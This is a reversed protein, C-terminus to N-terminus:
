TPLPFTWSIRVTDSVSSASVTTKSLSRVGAWCPLRSSIRFRVARSRVATIRSMKAWFALLGSPFACTSNAWSRYRSGRSLRDPRVNLWCAPPMPVRPGPSVWNSTSRRRSM